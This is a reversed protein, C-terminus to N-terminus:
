TSFSLLIQKFAISLILRTEISIPTTSNYFVYMTWDSIQGYVGGSIRPDVDRGAYIALTGTLNAVALTYGLSFPPTLVSDIINIM